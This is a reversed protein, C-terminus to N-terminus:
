MKKGTEVQSSKCDQLQTGSFLFDRQSLLYNATQLQRAHPPVSNLHCSTFTPLHNLPYCAQARMLVQTQIGLGWAFNSMAGYVQLQAPTFIQTDQPSM